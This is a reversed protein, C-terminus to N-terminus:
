LEVFVPSDTLVLQDAEMTQAQGYIDTVKITGSIAAPLDAQGWLVYITDNGTDFAYQGVLSTVGDHDNFNEELEQNIITVSDFSNIKDVLNLYVQHTTNDDAIEKFEEKKKDEGGSASGGQSSEKDKDLEERIDNWFLWNEIYFLREAGQALALVSARAVLQDFEEIDAPRDALEGFQVETIWIPKEELGYKKFYEKAKVMYLDERRSDTSITHINAIDFYDGAGAQFIPDWFDTHEAALSAMGAHLVQAEPDAQKITQYSTQLIELYEASTGVFFKLEEGMGGTGGGQMVPENMIEWYKIPIVLGPMDDVGDGDYREVTAALFDAYATLDCPAGVKVKGGKKPDFVAIYKEEPHCAEQDWNTYPFIVPLVMAGSDQFRTIQEDFSDWNYTGEKEEVANWWFWGGRFFYAQETSVDVQSLHTLENAPDWTIVLKPKSNTNKAVDTTKTNETPDDKILQSYTLYGGGLIILIIITIIITKKM